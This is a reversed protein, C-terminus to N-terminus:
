DACTAVTLFPDFPSTIRPNPINRRTATHPNAPHLEPPPDLELVVGTGVVSSTPVHLVNPVAAHVEPQLPSEAVNWTFSTALGHLTVVGTPVNEAVPFTHKVAFLLLAEPDIEPVPIGVALLLRPCPTRTPAGASGMGSLEDTLRTNTEAVDPPRNTSNVPVPVTMPPFIVPLPLQLEADVVLQVPALAVKVAVWWYRCKAWAVRLFACCQALM